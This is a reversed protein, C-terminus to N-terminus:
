GGHQWCYGGSRASRFCRYGKKTTAMCQGSYSIHSVYSHKRKATRTVASIVNSSMVMSDVSRSQKRARKSKIRLPQPLQSVVLNLSDQLLNVRSSLKANELRLNYLQSSNVDSCSTFAIICLCTIILTLKSLM